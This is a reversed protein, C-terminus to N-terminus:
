GLEVAFLGLINEVPVKLKDAAKQADALHADVFREKKAQVNETRFAAPEVGAEVTREGGGVTWEGGGPNGAPVRPENVNFGAKALAEAIALRRVARDEIDLVARPVGEDQAKGLWGCEVALAIRRCRAIFPDPDPDPDENGAFRLLRRARSGFGLFLVMGPSRQVLLRDRRVVGTDFDVLV